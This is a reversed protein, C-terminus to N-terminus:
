PTAQRIERAKETNCVEIALSAYIKSCTFLDDVKMSSLFTGGHYPPGYTVAPIGFENFANIDRWMTVIAPIVKGPKEKFVKTHVKEISKVLGETNKGVYGRKFLYTQIDADIKTSKIAERLQQEVEPLDLYPPIRVDVYISCIGSSNSPRPPLGGRIAGINVKPVITGCPTERTNEREYANGWSEIAEIVKAMKVIANPHKEVEVPRQINPTYIPLGKVTVKIYAPGSAIWSVGFNTCEAVLAYDPVIGHNVLHTTGAGLGHYLPGEFEDIPAGGIEGVVATLILDGKLKVGSNKIAKAAILWAAMPGKDNLIGQGFLSDDELWADYYNRLPEAIAWVDTAAGFKTDMHSNFALSLGGGTGKLLAVVNYRGAYVEQKFPQFGNDQFWQYIFDGVEKEYGTPSKIRSINLALQVLEDKSMHKHVMEDLRQSITSMANIIGTSM